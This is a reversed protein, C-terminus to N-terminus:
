ESVVVETDAKNAKTIDRYSVYDCSAHDFLEEMNKGNIGYVNTPGEPYVGVPTITGCHKCELWIGTPLAGVQVDFDQGGCCVCKITNRIM